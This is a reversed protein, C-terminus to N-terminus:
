IYYFSSVFKYVLYIGKIEGRWDPELVRISSVMDDGSLDLYEYVQGDSSKTFGRTSVAIYM